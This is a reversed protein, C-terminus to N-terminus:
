WNRWVLKASVPSEGDITRLENLNNSLEFLKYM